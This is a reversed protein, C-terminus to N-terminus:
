PINEPIIEILSFRKILAYYDCLGHFNPLAQDKEYELYSKALSKLANRQELGIVKASLLHETTDVLDDLDVQPRYLFLKLIIIIIILRGNYLFRQLYMGKLLYHAVSKVM